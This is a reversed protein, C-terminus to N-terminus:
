SAKSSVARRGWCRREAAAFFGQVIRGKEWWRREAAAFFGQVIRGKSGLLAKGCGRLVRPRYPGEVGAAGKRLRSSGKSSVARRGWCCKEAAAFFGQVIRGKSGLLAKGCGRLLRPRYPGEVGAAGKRLRSSAKSSVARRGWCRREAAAFFGQVIRGKSGLLAKGCGRLLRPRYPREVGAAGKGCGRLLRPRYPGEGVLLAKGCGRLVRPRYTGEVGAAGKRLRSSAKSSVARRGWCRREAAAFFGQVISGKSGLLAKGCGRLLRPRYPGEGM